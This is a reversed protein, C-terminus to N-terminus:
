RNIIFKSTATTVKGHLVATYFGPSLYDIMIETETKEPSIIGSEWVARGSIDYITIFVSGSLPADWSLNIKDKSPNPYVNLKLPLNNKSSHDPVDITICPVEAVVVDDIFFYTDLGGGFLSRVGFNGITITTYARDAHVIGCINKWANTETIYEGPPNAVHPTFDMEDSSGSTILANGLVAGINFCSNNKLSLLNVYFSILYNKGPILPQTLEGSIYENWSVEYLCGLMGKGSRPIASSSLGAADPINGFEDKPYDATWRDATAYNASWWGEALKVAFDDGYGDDNKPLLYISESECRPNLVLNTGVCNNAVCSNAIPDGDNFLGIKFDSAQANAKSYARVYYISGNNLNGPLIMINNDCKVASLNGPTGSFLQLTIDRTEFGAVIRKTNNGATFKFWIDDDPYDSMLCGSSPLTQTAGTTSLSYQYENILDLQLAGSPEDINQNNSVNIGFISTNGLASTNYIRVYVTDGITLGSLALSNNACSIVKSALGASDPAFGDFAEIAYSFGPIQETWFSNAASVSVTHSTAEPIFYFWVDHFPTNGSPGCIKKFQTSAGHLTYSPMKVINAPSPILKVAGSINDNVPPTIITITNNEVNGYQRIYYDQGPILNTFTTAAHLTIGQSFCTMSTLNGCSGSFIEIGLTNSGIGNNLNSIIASSSHTATFKYWIDNTQVTAACPALSQSADTIGNNAIASYNLVPQPNLVTASGCADNQPLFNVDVTQLGDGFFNFVRIFYTSGITLGGVRASENAGSCYISSLVSCTGSFTEFSAGGGESNTTIICATDGAIFKYWVDKVIGSGFCRPLSETANSNYGLNVRLKKYPQMTLSVAGNCEDNPMDPCICITTLWLENSTAGARVYYYNGITLGSYNLKPSSSNKLCTLSNCNGDLLNLDSTSGGQGYLQISVDTSIAQFVFWVDKPVSTCQSATSNTSGLRSYNYSNECNFSTSMLVTDANVCEDNQPSGENVFLSFNITNNNGVSIYYTQGVTLNTLTMVKTQNSISSNFVDLVTLSGLAGNYCITTTQNPTQVYVAHVTSTAIFKFWVDNKNSASGNCSTGTPTSLANTFRGINTPYSNEHRVNLLTAGSCDDNAPTGVVTLKYNSGFGSTGVPISTTSYTRLYYQQGPTLGTLSTGCVISTLSGCGGSFLQLAGSVSYSEPILMLSPETATFKYWLDHRAIDTGACTLIGSLAPDAYVNRQFVSDSLQSTTIVPIPLAGSCDDNPYIFQAKASSCLFTIIIYLFITKNKM